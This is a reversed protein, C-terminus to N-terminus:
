LISTAAAPAAKFAHFCARRGRGGLHIDARSWVMEVRTFGTARLLAEVCAQNPGWWNTPDGNLEAGPYFAMAPFPTECCDLWTELVLQRRCVSAVKRLGLFPDQLHYLVELFLVLGFEGGGIGSDSLTYVNCNRAHVNSKLAAHCFQFREWGAGISGPEDNRNWVDMATVAAAGRREAEFSFQGEWAGIDLVTLGDLREPLKYLAWADPERTGPTVVGHPLPIVHFWPRRVEVANQLADRTNAAAADADPATATPPTTTTNNM